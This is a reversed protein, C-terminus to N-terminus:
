QWAPDARVFFNRDGGDTTDNLYCIQLSPTTGCRMPRLTRTTPEVVALKVGSEWVDGCQWAIDVLAGERGPNDADLRLSIPRDLSRTRHCGGTEFVFGRSPNWDLGDLLLLAGADDPTLWSAMLAEAEPWRGAEALSRAYERRVFPQDPAKAYLAAWRGTARERCAAPDPCMPTRCSWASWGSGNQIEERYPYLPVLREPLPPPRASGLSISRICDLPHEGQYRAEVQTHDWGAASLAVARDVLGYNDLIAIDPILSVMGVDDLQVKAGDPVHEVLWQVDHQQPTQFYPPLQPVPVDRLRLGGYLYADSCVLSVPLVLAYAWARSTTRAPAVATLGALSALFGPLLWRGHGMWDGGAKVLLLSPLAVPLVWPIERLAPREFALLALVVIPLMGLWDGGLELFGDGVNAPQVLKVLYPTPWFHGYWDVRAVQYAGLVVLAVGGGVDRLGLRFDPRHADLHALRLLRRLVGAGVLFMGEPRLLSHLVLWGMARSWDDRLLARWGLALVLGATVTEMGSPAWWGLPDWVALALLIATGAPTRPLWRDFLALVGFGSALSLGKVWIAPPLHLLIGLALACVWLFNSYGEVREGSQWQLGGHHVWQDAYTYSIYIDDIQISLSASAFVALLLSAVLFRSPM